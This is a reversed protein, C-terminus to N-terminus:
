WYFNILGLILRTIKHYFRDPCNKCFFNLYLLIFFLLFLFFYFYYFFTQFQSLFQINYDGSTLVLVRMRANLESLISYEPITMHHALEDAADVHSLCLACTDSFPPLFYIYTFYSRLYAQTKGRSLNILIHSHVTPRTHENCIVINQFQDLRFSTRSRKDHNNSFHRIM